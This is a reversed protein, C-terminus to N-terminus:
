KRGLFLLHLLNELGANEGRQTGLLNTQLLADTTTEMRRTINIFDPFSLSRHGANRPLSSHLAFHCRMYILFAHANRDGNQQAGRRKTKIISSTPWTM